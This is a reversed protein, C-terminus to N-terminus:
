PSDAEIQTEETVFLENTLKKHPSPCSQTSSTSFAHTISQRLPKPSLFLNYSEDFKSSHLSVESVKM